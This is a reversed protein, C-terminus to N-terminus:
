NVMGFVLPKPHNMDKIFVAECKNTQEKFVHFIWSVSILISEKLCAKQNSAESNRTQDNDCPYSYPIFKKNGMEVNKKCPGPFWVQRSILELGQEPAISFVRLFVFCGCVTM